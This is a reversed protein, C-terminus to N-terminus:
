NLVDTLLDSHQDEKFCDLMLVIFKDMHCKFYAVVEKFCTLLVGQYTTGDQIRSM